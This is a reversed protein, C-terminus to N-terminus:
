LTGGNDSRNATPGLRIAEPAFATWAGAHKATTLLPKGATLASSFAAWLGQRAAETKGFKSLIVVDAQAIQPLLEACAENIGVTDLHCTTGTPATDLQISFGRGSDIDRLFAASCTGAANGNEALVGVVRARAGRWDNAADSLLTQCDKDRATPSPPSPM